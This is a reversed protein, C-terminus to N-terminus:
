AKSKGKGKKRGPKEKEPPVVLSGGELEGKELGGDGDEGMERIKQEASISFLLDRNEEKLEANEGKLKTIEESLAMMSKNVHGIREMLGESVKKEEMLSKGFGRAVESSKEAKRKERELDKELSVLVESKLKKNELELDALKSLAEDARTTATAASTSAASAKAVAKGVLEEFYVRQSELQSTLLHTYEMGIRELKERPVMDEDDRGRGMGTRSSSPLEIVKSDGKDRILRHVWMDGAYDWVHQTEIELAFNHASDKWHEKAHGGKYRGCGVNGCILCIWLDDTSDCVSCLSAEGSGFPPISPDYPHASTASPSSAALSPNTHRCVPCGSGKWKQLCDCHFVHQCLITLLGTTDDMRELCVPCTPLEVLNPTPPPFPKLFTSASQSPTFPDHSLEPFSTNPRSSAPTQFTISKIFMVHCTEPEMTNFVKGDFEKRWRRAVGGDRFKMLVLYRNMRGTMVMRFHSVDERTKEGVFGLFDSPTLYSPVAPVCLVTFDEEAEKGDTDDAAYIEEQPPAGLDLTEDGDRYLHVIGWGVETNKGEVADFRAKTVRGGGVGVGTTAASLGGGASSSEGRRRLAPAHTHDMETDTGLDLSEVRVRGFRWDRRATKLDRQINGPRPTPFEPQKSAIPLTLVGEEDDTSSSTARAPGCDIVVRPAQPQAQTSASSSFSKRGTDGRGSPTTNEEVFLAVPAHAPWAGTEFIDSGESPVWVERRREEEEVKTRGKRRGKQANGGIESDSFPYPYLEFKLHYFYSPM